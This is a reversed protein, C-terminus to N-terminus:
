EVTMEIHAGRHDRVDVIKGRTGSEQLDALLRPVDIEQGNATVRLGKPLFRLIVEALGLPVTFNMAEGRHGTFRVRLLRGRSAQRGREPQLAALLRDADDGSLKGERLMDLIRLREEPDAAM